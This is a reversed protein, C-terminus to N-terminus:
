DDITSRRGAQPGLSLADDVPAARSVPAKTADDESPESKIGDEMKDDM